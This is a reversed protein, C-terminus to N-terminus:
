YRQHETIKPNAAADEVDGAAPCVHIRGARRVPNVLMRVAEETTGVVRPGRLASVGDMKVIRAALGAEQPWRHDFESGIVRVRHHDSNDASM